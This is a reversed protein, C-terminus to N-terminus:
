VHAVEPTGAAPLRRRPALTPDDFVAELSMQAAGRVAASVGLASVEVETPAGEHGITRARLERRMPDLLWPGLASFYGGLVVLGPDLVSVLTATGIGLWTGVQELAALTRPEGAEARRVVERLRQEVDLTPDLVDDHLDALGNLLATLGVRTEWCGRRGCGCQAGQIELPMHGVEGGFGFHGRHLRGDIVLGAGVGVDGTLLVLDSVRRRRADYEALAALNAENDAQVTVATETLATRVLDVIPVGRWGLNSATVVEGAQMTVLGPVGVTLGMIGRGQDRSTEVVQEVLDVVRDVVSAIPERATDLGVRREAVVAGSLDVSCVALYDVNIEAGLASIADRDLAVDSGPRGVRGARDTSGEDDETVLRREVLETVLSSVTTKNLATEEAIRARSRPGLDRVTRLVRALNNQRMAGQPTTLVQQAGM